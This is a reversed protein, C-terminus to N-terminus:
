MQALEQTDAALQNQADSLRKQEKALNKSNTELATASDRAQKSFKKYQATIEQLEAQLGALKELEPFHTLLMEDSAHDSLWGGLVEASAQREAIQLDLNRMLTLEAQANATLQGIKTKLSSITQQQTTISYQSLDGIVTDGLKKKLPLLETQLSILEAKAKAIAQNKDNIREVEEKFALVNQHSAIKALQQQLREAENKAQQLNKQQMAIQASTVSINKLTAQQQRLTDQEARYEAHQEQYDLLDHECAELQEPPLLSITTLQQQIKDLSKQATEAQEVVQKKYDAYIDASIIKELIDMREADLANLFAAFDGQALLISRTFNRFNMGTIEMMKSCVQAPTEALVVGSNLHTLQMTAAQLAENQKEVRWSSQYRDSGLVFELVSFCDTTQETMVHAAPKNFRFTEGYLALTIADLITSKGSGNPGTIAFVGSESFLADTFDIHTEGELSNINKFVINLIRM